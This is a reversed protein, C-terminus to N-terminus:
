LGERFHSPAANLFGSDRNELASSTGTDSYFAEEKNLNILLSTFRQILGSRYCKSVSGQLNKHPDLRVRGYVRM